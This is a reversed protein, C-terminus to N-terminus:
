VTVIRIRQIVTPTNSGGTTAVNRLESESGIIQGFITHEGAFAPNDNLTFFFQSGNSDPGSNAMALQGFGNFELGNDLEDEFEFGPGGTGTGLPDGGQAVFDDIVRHFTLGDFFGDETLNVFSNVAIPSESAFLQVRIDGADTEIIAEYNLSTDITLEPATDFIDNRLEPSVDSLQRQGSFPVFDSPVAGTPPTFPVSIDFSSESRAGNVDEAIVTLTAEGFDIAELNIQGDESITPLTDGFIFTDGVIQLDFTIGADDDDPDTARVDITSATNEDLQMDDIVSIVPADNVPNVNLTARQRSSNATGDTISIVVDRAGEAPDDNSDTFTITRIVQTFNESTDRGVLRLIGNSENFSAEINTGETVASLTETGSFSLIRATASSLLSGNAFAVLSSSAAINVVDNETYQLEFDEGTTLGNLDVGFDSAVSDLRFVQINDIQAGVGDGLNAAAERFLLTSSESDATQIFGFRQWEATGDFSGAFEGNWRVRVNATETDDLDGNRLDFTVYYRSNVETEVSQFIRDAIDDSSNLNLFNDGDTADGSLISIEPTGDVNIAGFGPVASAPVTGTADGDVIEFSNNVVETSSVAAVAVNDIFIGRGDSDRSAERFELRSTDSSTTGSLTVTQWRNGGTFVGLSEGDFLVEVDNTDSADGDRLNRGRLDFSIIFEADVDTALDQALSDVQGAVADVQAATAFRSNLERTAVETTESDDGDAFAIFSASSLDEFDGDVVLNRAADLDGALLIKPELSCYDVKRNTRTRKQM